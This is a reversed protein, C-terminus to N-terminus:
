YSHLRHYAVETTQTGESNQRMLRTEQIGLDLHRLKYKNAVPLIVNAKIEMVSEDIHCKFFKRRPRYSLMTMCKLPTGHEYLLSKMDSLVHEKECDKCPDEELLVSAKVSHIVEPWHKHLESHAKDIEGTLKSLFKKMQSECCRSRRGSKKQLPQHQCQIFFQRNECQVVDQDELLVIKKTEQFGAIFTVELEISLTPEGNVTHKSTAVNTFGLNRLLEVVPEVQRLEVFKRANNMRCTKLDIYDLTMRLSAMMRISTHSSLIKTYALAGLLVTECGGCGQWGDFNLGVNRQIERCVECQGILANILSLTCNSSGKRYFKKIVIPSHDRRRTRRCEKHTRKLKLVLNLLNSLTEENIQGLSGTLFHLVAVGHAIHPQDDKLKAMQRRYDDCQRDRAKYYHIEEVTRLLMGTYFLREAQGAVTTIRANESVYQHAENNCPITLQERDYAHHGDRYVLKYAENLIILEEFVCKLFELAGKSQDTDAPPPRPNAVVGQQDNEM